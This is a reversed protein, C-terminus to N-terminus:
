EHRLASTPDVRIARWAPALASAACAALLGLLPATISWPNSPEVDFLLGAVFRAALVAGGAGMAVGVITMAGVESLVLRLVRLRPAGLALRIGIERTRRTVGYSLVGYLGVFVLAITVLSFFASLLALARDRVLADDVLTSQLTVDV